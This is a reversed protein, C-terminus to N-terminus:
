LLSAIIVKAMDMTCLDCPECWLGRWGMVTATNRKEWESKLAAGRVHRGNTWIGGDVELYLKRDPWAFDFRWKRTPHFKHEVETGRIGVEEIWALVIATNYGSKSMAAEM